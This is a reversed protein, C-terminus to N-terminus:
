HAAFNWQIQVTAFILIHRVEHQINGQVHLLAQSDCLGLSNTGGEDTQWRLRSRAQAKGESGRSPEVPRWERVGAAALTLLEYLSNIM